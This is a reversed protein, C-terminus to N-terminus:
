FPMSSNLRLGELVWEPAEVPRPAIPSDYQQSIWCAFFHHEIPLMQHPPEERDRWFDILADLGADMWLRYDGVYRVWLADSESLDLWANLPWWAAWAERLIPWLAVAESEWAPSGRQMDVLHYLFPQLESGADQLRDRYPQLDPMLRRQGSAKAVAKKERASVPRRITPKEKPRM